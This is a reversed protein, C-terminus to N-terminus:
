DPWPFNGTLVDDMAVHWGHLPLPDETAVCFELLQDRFTEELARHEPRGALNVLEEPDAVLDYLEVDGNAYWAYKWDDNRVMKGKGLWGEVFGDWGFFRADFPGDPLFPLDDWSVPDRQEGCEAFARERLASTGALAGAMSAGQVGPPVPVGALDLLTPMLDVQELFGRELRRAALTGPWSLVFPLRILADYFAVSKHVAGHDGVYGGHDTTFAVITRRDLGSQELVDLISRLANDIFSVQGLQMAMLRRVDDETATHMGSMRSAIRQREPKGELDDVPPIAVDDPNYMSAYPEPAQYPNHPDPFSLWLFWPRESSRRERIFAEARQRLVDTTCREPPFPTTAVAAHSRWLWAQSSFARLEDYEAGEPASHDATFWSDFLQPRVDVLAGEDALQTTLSPLERFRRPWDRLALGGDRFQSVVSGDAFVHNKGILATEYGASRLVLPLSIEREPLHIHLARVGTTHPYRGTHVTARAPTCAPYNCIHGDVVVGHEALLEAGPTRVDENGYVSLSAAQQQDTMVFLINPRSM